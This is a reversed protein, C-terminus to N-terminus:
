VRQEGPLEDKPRYKGTEPDYVLTETPKGMAKARRKAEAHRSAKTVREAERIFARYGIWAVTGVLGVVILHPM